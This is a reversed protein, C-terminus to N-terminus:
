GQWERGTLARYAALARALPEADAEGWGKNMCDITKYLAGRNMFKGDDTESFTLMLRYGRERMEADLALMAAPDTSYPILPKTGATKFNPGYDWIIAIPKGEESKYIKNGLAEAIAADLKRLVKPDINM